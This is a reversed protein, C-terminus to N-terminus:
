REVVEFVLQKMEGFNDVLTLIHNGKTTFIEKKHIHTTTGM